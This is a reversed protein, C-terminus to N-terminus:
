FDHADVNVTRWFAKPGRAVLDHVRQAEIVVSAQEGAGAVLALDVGDVASRAEGFQLLSWCVLDCSKSSGGVAIEEGHAAIEALDVQQLVGRLAFAGEVAFDKVRAVERAPSADLRAGRAVHLNPRAATVDIIGVAIPAVPLADIGRFVSGDRSGGRSEQLPASHQM